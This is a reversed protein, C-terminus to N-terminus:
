IPLCMASRWLSFTPISSRQVGFAASATGASCAPLPTCCLPMFSFFCGTAMGIIFRRVSRCFIFIIGPSRLIGVMALLNVASIASLIAKKYDLFRTKM